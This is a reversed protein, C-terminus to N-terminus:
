QYELRPPPLSFSGKELPICVLVLVAGSRQEAPLPARSELILFPSLEIHFPLPFVLPKAPDWGSLLLTLEAREGARFLPLPAAWSLRPRYAGPLPGLVEVALSGTVFERGPAEIKLFELSARGARQPIFVCEIHTWVEEGAGEMVRPGTRVRELVLSGTLPPFEVKLEEPKGHDVLLSVIWPTDVQVPGPGAQVIVTLADDPRVEACVLGLLFLVM